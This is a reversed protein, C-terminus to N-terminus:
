RSFQFAEEGGEAPPSKKKFFIEFGRSKKEFIHYVTLTAPKPTDDSVAVPGYRPQSSLPETEDRPVAHFSRNERLLETKRRNERSQSAPFLFPAKCSGILTRVFILYPSTDFHDYRPQSSILKRSLACPNSDWGRRWKRPQFCCELGTKLLFAKGSTISDYRCISLQQPAM